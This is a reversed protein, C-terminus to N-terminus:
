RDASEGPSDEAANGGVDAGDAGVTGGAAGARRARRRERLGERHRRFFGVLLAASDQARLGEDVEARHNLRPDTLVQGLSVAAGFKPDRAAWVVRAVRAQSIAGACLFCPEVTTYLTTGPLRLDGSSRCAARIALVEAHATPDVLARTRNHARALIQDGRVLVAGIPVEDEAAAARAEALALDMFHLDRDRAGEPEDERSTGPTAGSADGRGEFPDRPRADDSACM